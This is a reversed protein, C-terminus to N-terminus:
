NPTESAQFSIVKWVQDALHYVKTFQWHEDAKKEGFERVRHIIGSVLALDGFRRISINNSEYVMFKVNIRKYMALADKKSFVPMRPVTITIDDDWLQNFATTDNKLHAENWTKELQNFMEVDATSANGQISYNSQALLNLFLLFFSVIILRLNIM